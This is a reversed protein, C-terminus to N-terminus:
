QPAACRVEDAEVFVACQRQLLEAITKGAGPDDALLFRLPERLLMDEYVATIQHLLPAIRSTTVALYPDFLHALRIRAAEAALKFLRGNADFARPRGAALRLGSLRDSFIIQDDLMEDTRRFTFQVSSSGITQSQIVAVPGAPDLGEILAGPTLQSVSVVM